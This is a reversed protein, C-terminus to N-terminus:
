LLHGMMVESRRQLERAIRNVYRFSIMISRNCLTRDFPLIISYIMTPAFTAADLFLFVSLYWSLSFPSSLRASCEASPTVLVQSSTNSAASRPRRSAISPLLTRGPLNGRQNNLTMPNSTVRSRFPEVTKLMSAGNRPPSCFLLYAAPDRAHRGLALLYLM